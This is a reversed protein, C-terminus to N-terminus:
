SPLPPPSILFGSGSNGALSPAWYRHSPHLLHLDSVQFHNFFRTYILCWIHCREWSGPYRTIQWWLPYPNWSKGLCGQQGARQSVIWPCPIIISRYYNLGLEFSTSNSTVMTFHSARVSCSKVKGSPMKSDKSGNGEWWCGVGTWGEGMGKFPKNCTLCEWQLFKSFWLLFCYGYVWKGPPVVTLM